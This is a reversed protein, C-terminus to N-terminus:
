EIGLTKWAISSTTLMNVADMFAEVSLRHTSMKCLCTENELKDLWESNLFNEIAYYKSQNYINSPTVGLFDAIKYTSVDYLTGVFIITQTWRQKNTKSLRRIDYQTNMVQNIVDYSINFSRCISEVIKRAHVKGFDRELVQLYMAFRIELVRPHQRYVLKDTENM